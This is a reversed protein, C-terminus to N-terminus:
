NRKIGGNSTFLIRKGTAQSVIVYEGPSNERLANVCSIAADLNQAAEVFVLTGNQAFKFVDFLVGM